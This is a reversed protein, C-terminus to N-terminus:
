IVIQTQQQRAAMYHQLYAIQLEDIKLFANGAHRSLYVNVGPKKHQLNEIFTAAFILQTKEKVQKIIRLVGKEFRIEDTFNSYLRGQPFILVLNDPDNLLGAAYDLSALLDKSNKAISFAGMYKFFSVKRVTEELVMIHFRKKFLRDNLHYLIFGDWWSFHNALLLVSKGSDIQLGNFKVENFNSAVLHNIYRHFLWHVLKNKKATIM